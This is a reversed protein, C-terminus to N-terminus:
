GVVGDLLLSGFRHVHAKVPDAIPDSLALEDDVPSFSRIIIGIIEGLLMWWGMVAKLTTSEYLHICVILLIYTSM